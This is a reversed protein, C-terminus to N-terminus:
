GRPHARHHESKLRAPSVHTYIQTTSLRAHGLMEQVSRLDAGGELLDTAFTHRMDHPSLSADLGALLLSKKFMKRLADTTMKNGRTSVFFHPCEKGGLLAPRAIWAYTRMSDVALDHLPIIREKGGKGFVTAQKLDFDVDCVLLDSTESVRAGCAYLFELIAKNRMDEPEDSGAYAGLLKAMEAASIVRPLRKAAKPGQLVSVPDSEAHGRAVAWRFFSRLASLHRNITRRSYAARDLESLYGRVERHTAGLPDVGVRDAWSGYSALDARYSRVTHPSANREAELMTCFRDVLGAYRENAESSDQPM